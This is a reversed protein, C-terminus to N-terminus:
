KEYISTYILSIAIDFYTRIQDKYLSQEYKHYMFLYYFLVYYFLIYLIYM